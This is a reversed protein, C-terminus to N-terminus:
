VLQIGVKIKISKNDKTTAEVEANIAPKEMNQNFSVLFRTVEIRHEWKKLAMVCCASIQLALAPSIPRDILKYLYSGYSRRMVRSGVATLIIDRVSQEIHAKEDTLYEGTEKNM